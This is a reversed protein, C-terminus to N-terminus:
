LPERWRLGPFRAYDRDATIWECGSEVALAAFYAHPILNGRVGGTRCLSRFIEWHRPGPVVPIANRQARLADAFEFAQPATSPEQFVRPHTVIRAFGSLVLDSIGFGEDAGLRARLWAYYEQHRPADRRFAYVLINVDCLIM